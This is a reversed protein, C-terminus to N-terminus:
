KVYGFGLITLDKDLDEKNIYVEIIHNKSEEENIVIVPNCHNWGIEKPDYTMVFKGDAYIDAKGANIEGSDKIVLLFAKCNIEVKLPLPSEGNGELAGKYMYNYPFEATQHLDLNREVSQTADDTYIFAGETVTASDANLVKDFFIVNEFTKGIPADMSIIDVEEDYDSNMARSILEIIGDAMITHGDNSPHFVDYFYQSKSIIRGDEHSLYFQDTVANKASVMPLNYGYGVPSLREQLNYDDAFVSFMLIVAPKKPGAWIKRVLSDYCVGKTEDGEDNVAFEVVVIDPEGADDMLVDREYRLMGLESPTGGVGAKCYHINEDVGKGLLKCLGTFAKYTYCETNIPVAGAGQTISGGIFSITVDEGRRAKDLAKKIRYNNGQNVVANAIIEKYRESGFDVPYEEEPEPADFGDNLFFRVNVKAAMGAKEFEFRIQGPEFDDDEWDLEDLVIINEMDNAKIMKEITTGGAYKDNKGYMQFAFLVNMDKDPATASVGISYVLKRFGETTKLLEHINEDTINGTIKSSNILRGSDEYIFQIGRGDPQPSGSVGKNRMIYFSPRKKTPDKPAKPGRIEEAM